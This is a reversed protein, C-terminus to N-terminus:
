KFINYLNVYFESNQFITTKNRKMLITPTRNSSLILCKVSFFGQLLLRTPLDSSEWDLSGMNLVM